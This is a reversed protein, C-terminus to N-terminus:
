AAHSALCGALLFAHSHLKDLAPRPTLPRDNIYHSPNSVKHICVVVGQCRPIHKAAWLHNILQCVLRTGALNAAGNANQCRKTCTAPWAAYCSWCYANRVAHTRKSACHFTQVVKRAHQVGTQGVRQMGNGTEKIGAVFTAIWPTCPTPM